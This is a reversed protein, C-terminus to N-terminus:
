PVKLKCPSVCKHVRECIRKNRSSFGNRSGVEVVFRLKSNVYLLVLVESQVPDHSNPRTGEKQFSFPTGRRGFRVRFVSIEEM